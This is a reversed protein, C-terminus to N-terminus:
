CKPPLPGPRHLLDARMWGTYRSGWPHAKFWIYHSPDSYDAWCYVDVGRPPQSVDLKTSQTTPRARLLADTVRVTAVQRGAGAAALAVQSGTIHGTASSGAAQAVAVHEVLPAQDHPTVSHHGETAGAALAVGAAVVGVLPVGRKIGNKV